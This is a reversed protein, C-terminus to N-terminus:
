DDQYLDQLPISRIRLRNLIGSDKGTTNMTTKDGACYGLLVADETFHIATYCFGHDPASEILSHHKWTKGEDDSIASVLPTRGRSVPEPEPLHYQGYHDNWIALLDGNSPVRKMSLPSEPSVFTSKQASSWSLGNDVSFTEWQRPESSENEHWKTRMWSWLKGDNLEIIGPEQFGQGDPFNAVLSNASELWTQGGDDSFLYLIQASRTLIRPTVKELKVFPLRYRHLAIPLIIRGNELQIVRDNNLVHYGPIPTALTPDTFTELEDESFRVVPRCDFLGTEDKVKRLYAFLIRGDQLRLLSVSMVNTEGTAPEVLIREDGWTKGGDSSFLCAISARGHDRADQTTYRTWAFAIRGDRLTVFAGESNRGNDSAPDLQLTVKGIM